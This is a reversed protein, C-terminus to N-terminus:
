CSDGLQWSSSVRGGMYAGRRTEREPTGLWDSLSIDDDIAEEQRAVIVGLERDSYGDECPPVQKYGPHVSLRRRPEFSEDGDGICDIAAV